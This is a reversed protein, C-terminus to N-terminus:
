RGISHDTATAITAAMNNWGARCPEVHEDVPPYEAFAGVRALHDLSEALCQRHRVVDVGQQGPHHGCQLLTESEGPCSDPERVGVRVEVGGTLVLGDHRCRDCEIVLQETDDLAAGLGAADPGVGVASDDRRKAAWAANATWLTLSM